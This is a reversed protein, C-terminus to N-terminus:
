HNFKNASCPIFEVVAVAKVAQKHISRTKAHVIPVKVYVTEAILDIPITPPTAVIDTSSSSASGSHGTGDAGDGEGDGLLDDVTTSIEPDEM